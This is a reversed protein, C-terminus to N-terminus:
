PRDTAQETSRNVSSSTIFHPLKEGCWQSRKCRVASGLDQRFRRNFIFIVFFTFNHGVFLTWDMFHFNIAWYVMYPFQNEAEQFTMTNVYDDYQPLYIVEQVLRCITFAFNPVAQAMLMICLSIDRNWKDRNDTSIGTLRRRRMGAVMLGFVVMMSTIMLLVGQILELCEDYLAATPLWTVQRSDFYYYTFNCNANIYYM